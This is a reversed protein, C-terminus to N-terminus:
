ECLAVLVRRPPKSPRRAHMVALNDILLVDGAEWKVEVCENDMVRASEEMVASPIASGDGCLLRNYSAAKRYVAGPIYNFWVKQDNYGEFSRTALLPGAIVNASGNAMWVLKCGRAEIRREVEQPDHTQFQSPWSKGLFFGEDAKPMFTCTVIGEKNLKSVFSPFKSEMERAVKDSRVIATQGGEPPAIECFFFIKSPFEKMLAMEHHFFIDQDLPAENATWVRGVINNRLASGEYSKEEWGFADVFANFDSASKICKFGKFLLAGTEQLEKQFWEKEKRISELVARLEEDHSYCCQEHAVVPTIVKPFLSGNDIKKQEPIKGERMNVPAM